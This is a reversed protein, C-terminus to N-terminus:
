VSVTRKRGGFIGLHGIRGMLISQYHNTLKWITKWLEGNCVRWPEAGEEAKRVWTCVDEMDGGNFAM